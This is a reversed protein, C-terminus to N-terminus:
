PRAEHAIAFAILLQDLARLPAVLLRDSTRAALFLFFERPQQRPEDPICGLNLIYGLLGEDLGIPRKGAKASVTRKICPQVPDADVGGFVVQCGHPPPRRGRGLYVTLLRLAVLVALLQAIE